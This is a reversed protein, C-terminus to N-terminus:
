SKTTPAIVRELSACVENARQLLALQDINLPTSSLQGLADRLQELSRSLDPEASGRAQDGHVVASKRGGLQRQSHALRRELRQVQDRAVLANRWRFTSALAMQKVASPDFPKRLFLLKDSPGLEEVIDEWSFDSYASCIVMQIDPDLKWIHRITEVGNWGPPMRIDVFALAFAQGAEIAGQVAEVAAHGQFAHDFEYDPLELAASPESPEGLVESILEDLAGSQSPPQLLMRVDDHIDENDDVILVRFTTTTPSSQVPRRHM